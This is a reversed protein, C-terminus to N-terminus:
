VNVRVISGPYFLVPGGNFGDHVEIIPPVQDKREIVKQYAGPAEGENNANRVYRFEGIRQGNQRGGVLVGKADPIFPAFNAGADDTYGKDYVVIRPLGEGMFIANLRDQNRIAGDGGLTSWRGGLDAANTNNLLNNFTVLNIYLTAGAGFDAGTGRALLAIARLNALPTATATTAWAVGATYTTLTFTDTAIISTDRLVSYTGTVLLDWNLKEIRDLRRGLLQDQREMVLDTIDIPGANAYTGWPRRMTMEREDIEMWEGYVGPTAMYRKAGVPRVRGPQGNIGRAAQLGGYADLQEWVIDWADVDRTPLIDFIPRTATLEPEKERAIQVLEVTSPFNYTAM